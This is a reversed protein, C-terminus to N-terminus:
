FYTRSRIRDVSQRHSPLPGSSIVTANRIQRGVGETEDSDACRDTASEAQVTEFKTWAVKRLRILEHLSLVAVNSMSPSRFHTLDVTIHVWVM